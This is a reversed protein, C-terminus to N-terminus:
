HFPDNIRFKGRPITHDYVEVMFTAIALVKNEKSGVSAPSSCFSRWFQPQEIVSLCLVHGTAWMNGWTTKHGLCFM